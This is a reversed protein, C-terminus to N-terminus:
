QKKQEMDDMLHETKRVLDEWEEEIEKRRSSDMKPREASTSDYDEPIERNIDDSLRQRKRELEAIQDLLERNDELQEAKGKLNELLGGVKDVAEDYKGEDFKQKEQKLLDFASKTLDKVNTFIEKSQAKEEPTGFFYNYVLIGAVLLLGVKILSKLM